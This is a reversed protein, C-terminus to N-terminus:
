KASWWIPPAVTPLPYLLAYVVRYELTSATFEAVCHSYGCWYHYAPRLPLAHIFRVVTASYKWFRPIPLGEVACFRHLRYLGNRRGIGGNPKGMDTASHVNTRGKVATKAIAADYPHGDNARRSSTKIVVTETCCLRMLASTKFIKRRFSRNWSNDHYPSSCITLPM